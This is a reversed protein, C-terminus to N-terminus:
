VHARGIEKKPHVRVTIPTHVGVERISNALDELKEEDFHHRPQAPDREINLIAIKEVKM